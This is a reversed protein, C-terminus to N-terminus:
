NLIKILTTRKFSLLSVGDPEKRDPIFNPGGDDDSVQRSRKGNNAGESVPAPPPSPARDTNETPSLTEEFWLGLLPEDDEEVTSFVCIIEVSDLINYLYWM